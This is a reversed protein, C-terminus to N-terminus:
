WRRAGEGVGELTPADRGPCCRRARRGKHRIAPWCRRYRPACSGDGRSATVACRRPHYASGESPGAPRALASAAASALCSVKSERTAGAPITEPWRRSWGPWRRTLRPGDVDIPVPGVVLRAPRRHWALVTAPTVFRHAKLARPLLRTLAALIARDAWDLGDTPNQGACCRTRTACPSFTPM